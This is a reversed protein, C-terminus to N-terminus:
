PAYSAGRGVGEGYAMRIRNAYPNSYGAYPDYYPNTMSSPASGVPQGGSPDLDGGYQRFGDQSPDPQSYLPDTGDTCASRRRMGDSGYPGYRYPGDYEWRSTDGLVREDPDSSRSRDTSWKAAGAGSDYSTDHYYSWAGDMKTGGIVDTPGTGPPGLQVVGTAVLVVGFVIVAALAWTLARVVTATTSSGGSRHAPVHVRAPAHQLNTMTTSVGAPSGVAAAAQKAQARRARWGTPPPAPRTGALAAGVIGDVDSAPAAQPSRDIGPPSFNSPDDPPSADMPPLDPCAGHAPLMGGTGYKM